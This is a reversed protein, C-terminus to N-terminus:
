DVVGISYKIRVNCAVMEVFSTRMFLSMERNIKIAMRKEQLM